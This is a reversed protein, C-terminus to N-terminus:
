EDTDLDKYFPEWVTGRRPAVFEAMQETRKEMVYVYPFASISKCWSQLESSRCALRRESDMSEEFSHLDHMLSHMYAAFPNKSFHVDECTFVGGPTIHPSLEELTAIQQGPFNGGVDIVIDVRPVNSRFEKWFSRDAQDGIFIEVGLVAHARCSPEIDVGYVKCKEGFYDKWM